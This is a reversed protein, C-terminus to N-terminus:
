RRAEDVSTGLEKPPPLATQSSLFASLVLFGVAQFAILALILTMVSAWGPIAYPTALKITVVSMGGLSASVATLLAVRSFLRVWADPHSTLAAVAYDALDAVHMKAAGATRPLRAVKVSTKRCPALSLTAALHRFTRGELLLSLVEKRFGLFNGYPLRAGLFARFVAQYVFYGLLWPLSESRKSREAFVIEFRSLLEIMGPLAAPDDQGDSDMSFILDADLERARRFGAALARQHGVNVALRVVHLRAAAGGAALMRWSARAAEVSDDTSADDVLIVDLGSLCAGQLARLLGALVSAISENENYLPMVVALRPPTM